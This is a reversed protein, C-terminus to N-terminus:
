LDKKNLEKYWFLSTTEDGNILCRYQWFSQIKSAM